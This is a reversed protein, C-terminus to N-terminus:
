NELFLFAPSICYRHGYYPSRRRGRDRDRSGRVKSSDKAIEVRVNVGCVEKGDLERVSDEADKPDIFEVFAFGPPNRAVWVSKLEGYKEFAKEIEPKSGGTGLDGIYM